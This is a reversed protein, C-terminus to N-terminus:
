VPEARWERRKAVFAAAIMALTLTMYVYGITAEVAALARGEDGEPRMDGYGLRTWTVVSFYLAPWFEQTVQNTTTDFIGVRAQARAFYTIGGVLGLTTLYVLFPWNINEFSAVVFWTYILLWFAGFFPSSGFPPSLVCPWVVLLTPLIKYLIARVRERRGASHGKNESHSM